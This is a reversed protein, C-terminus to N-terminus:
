VYEFSLPRIDDSGAGPKESFVHAFNPRVILLPAPAHTALYETVSGCPVDAMGSRGHSAVVILDVHQDIALQRLKTRPDGNSAVISRVPLREKWLQTQFGDLYERAGAENQRALQSCLEGAQGSSGFGAIAFAPVAHALILEAGHARAIRVAIPLVSEARPSGDLPVLLRQYPLKPRFRRSMPVLLLSAPARELVKQATAGLGAEDASREHTGLAMLTIEHDKAWATLEDAPAGALLVSEIGAAGAARAGVLHDLRRRGERRRMQWEIPDAPRNFEHATEIVRAAAVSLDLGRAVSLAHQLVTEGFASDDLCALVRGSASARVERARSSAPLAFLAPAPSNAKGGTSPAATM